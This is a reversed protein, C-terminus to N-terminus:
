PTGGTLSEREADPGRMLAEDRRPAVRGDGRRLPRHGSRSPVFVAVKRHRAAERERGSPSTRFGVAGGGSDSAEGAQGGHKFGHAVVVM